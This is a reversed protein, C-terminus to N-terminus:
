RKQHLSSYILYIGPIILLTEFHFLIQKLYYWFSYGLTFLNLYMIFFLLSYSVLNIGIIIKLIKFMNIIHFSSRYLAYISVNISKICSIPVNLHNHNCSISLYTCIFLSFIWDKNLHNKWQKLCKLPIVMNM